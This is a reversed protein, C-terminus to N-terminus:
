IYMTWLYIYIQRYTFTMNLGNRMNKVVFYINTVRLTTPNKKLV